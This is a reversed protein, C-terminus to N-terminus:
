TSDRLVVEFGLDVQHPSHTGKRILALVMDAAAQGIQARPTRVTTLRPLM